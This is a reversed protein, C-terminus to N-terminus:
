NPFNSTSFYRRWFGKLSESSVTTTPEELKWEFVCKIQILPFYIQGGEEGALAGWQKANSILSFRFQCM